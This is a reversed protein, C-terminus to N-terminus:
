RLRDLVCHRSMIIGRNCLLSRWPIGYRQAPHMVVEGRQHMQHSMYSAPPLVHRQQMCQMLVHGKQTSKWYSHVPPRASAHVGYSPPGDQQHSQSKVSDRYSPPPPPPTQSQTSACLINAMSDIPRSLAQPPPRIGVKSDVGARRLTTAMVDTHRLSRVTPGATLLPETSTLGFFSWKGTGPICRLDGFVNGTLGRTDANCTPATPPPLCGRTSRGGRRERETHQCM